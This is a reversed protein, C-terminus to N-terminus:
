QKPFLQNFLNALFSKSRDSPRAVKAGNNFLILTPLSKVAYRQSTSPCKDTNVKLFTVHPFENSLQEFTPAFAKCPNCWDAYFDVVVYGCQIRSNFDADSNVHVVAGFLNISSVLWASLIMKKM